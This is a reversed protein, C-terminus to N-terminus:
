YVSKTNNQTRSKTARVRHEITTDFADNVRKHSM